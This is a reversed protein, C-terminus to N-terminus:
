RRRLAKRIREVGIPHGGCPAFWQVDQTWRLVSGPPEGNAPQAWSLTVTYAGPHDYDYGASRFQPACSQPATWTATDNAVAAVGVPHDSFTERYSLWVEVQNGTQSLKLRMPPGSKPQVEVWNGSFAPSPPLAHVDPLLVFAILAAIVNRFRVM